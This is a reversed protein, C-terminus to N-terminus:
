SRRIPIPLGSRAALPPLRELFVRLSLRAVPRGSRTSVAALENSAGGAVNSPATSGRALLVGGAIVAAVAGGAVVVALMRLRSNQVSKPRSSANLQPDQELISRELDRLQPGPELGLEEAFRRKAAQFAALAEAQRGSRYLALMLEYLLRERFPHDPVLAELEPVLERDRGVALDADIRQELAMLRREELRPSEM